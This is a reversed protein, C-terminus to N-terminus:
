TKTHKEKLRLTLKSQALGIGCPPFNPYADTQQGYEEEEIM